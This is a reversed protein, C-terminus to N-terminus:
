LALIAINLDGDDESQVSFTPWATNALPEAM